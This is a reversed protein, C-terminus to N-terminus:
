LIAISLACSHMILRRRLVMVARGDCKLVTSSPFKIAYKSKYVKFLKQKMFPFRCRCLDFPECALSSLINIFYYM